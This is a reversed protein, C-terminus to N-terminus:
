ARSEEELKELVWKTIADQTRGGTYAVPNALDGGKPFWFLTPYGRINFRAGLDRHADADVKALYVREEKSLTDAAASLEPHLRVCHGCWPATFAVLASRKGNIVTDFNEPTLVQLAAGAEGGAAAPAAAAAAAADAAAPAANNNKNLAGPAINTQSSLWNALNDITRGGNYDTPSAVQGGAKFLKLTPFGRVGFRGGIDRHESADVKAIIVDPTPAFLGALQNWTPELNKCHGCWPAYFDVFVHKDGNDKVYTDFNAPTLVLVQGATFAAGSDSAAPAAPAAPAAKGTKVNM